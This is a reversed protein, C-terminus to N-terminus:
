PRDNFPIDVSTKTTIKATETDLECQCSILDFNIGVPCIIPVCKRIQSTPTTKSVLVEECKCKLENFVKPLQCRERAHKKCECQCSEENFVQRKRSCVRQQPTANCVCSCTQTDWYMTDTCTQKGRICQCSCQAYRHINLNCHKQQVKCLCQCSDDEEMTISYEEFERGGDGFNPLYKLVNIVVPQTRVATCEYLDSTCCGSCKRLTVCPPWFFVNPDDGKPVDVIKVRPICKPLEAISHEFKTNMFEQDHVIRKPKLLQNRHFEDDGSGVRRTISDDGSGARRTMSDDGSGVHRMMSDDGSEVRGRDGDDGSEVRRRMGDDGTEVRRRMYENDLMNDNVNNLEQGSSYSLIFKMFEEATRVDKLHYKLSHPIQQSSSIVGFLCVILMHLRLIQSCNWCLWM